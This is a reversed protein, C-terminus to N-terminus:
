PVKILNFNHKQQICDYGCSVLIHFISHQSNAHTTPTNTHTDDHYFTGIGATTTNM